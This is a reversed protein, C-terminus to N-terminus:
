CCQMGALLEGVQSASPAQRKIQQILAAIENEKQVKLFASSRKALNDKRQCVQVRTFQTQLKHEKDEVAKKLAAQM